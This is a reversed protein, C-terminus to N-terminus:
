TGRHVRLVLVQRTTELVRYAHSLRYGPVWLIKGGSTVLPWDQRARRPLKQNIWFDSLKMTHGDMGLPQFRDGPLPKRVMLCGPIQEADLRAVWPSTDDRLSAPLASADYREATIQWGGTLDTTGPM